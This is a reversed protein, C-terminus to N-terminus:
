KLGLAKAAVDPQKYHQKLNRLVRDWTWSSQEQQREISGFPDKEDFFDRTSFADEAQKDAVSHMAAWFPDEFPEVQLWEKLPALQLPEETESKKLQSLQAPTLYIGRAKELSLELGPAWCAASLTQIDPNIPPLGHHRADQQSYFAPVKKVRRTTPLRWHVLLYIDQWCFVWYPAPLGETDGGFLPTAAFQHDPGTTESSTTAGSADSAASSASTDSVGSTGSRESTTPESHQKITALLVRNLAELCEEQAEVQWTYLTHPKLKGQDDLDLLAHVRSLRESSLRQPLGKLYDRIGSYSIDTLEGLHRISWGRATILDFIFEGMHRTNRFFFNFLPYFRIFGDNYGLFLCTFKNKVPQPPYLL